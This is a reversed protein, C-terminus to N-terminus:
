ERHLLTRFNITDIEGYPVIDLEIDLDGLIQQDRTQIISATVREALTSQVLFHLGQDLENQMANIIEPASQKGIYREVISKAIDIALIVTDYTTINTFDSKTYSGANHAGTIGKSVVFGTSRNVMTCVRANLLAQAFSASVTRAQVVSNIQRNTASQGPQLRTMLAAFAMAGNTNQTITGGFGNQAARQRTSQLAQRCVAGFVTVARGGDVNNGLHDTAISGNSDRAWGDYAASIVGPSAEVSGSVYGTLEGEASHNHLGTSSNDEGRIHYPWENIQALTPTLFDSGNDSTPAVTWNELNATELLPRLGVVARVTNGISTARHCFDGFMRFYNTRNESYADTGTLGTADIYAEDSIIWDLPHHKLDSMSVALADWRDNETGYASTQSCIVVEVHNAGAEVAKEVALSLESDTGAAEKLSEIATPFSQILYPENLQASSGLSATTRGVITLKPGPLPASVRLGFDGISVTVGPLSYNASPTTAM